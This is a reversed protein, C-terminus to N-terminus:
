PIFASEIDSWPGTHTTNNFWRASVFIRKGREWEEFVLTLPNATDLEIHVLADVREPRADLIAWRIEIGHVHDPKAWHKSGFDRYRITIERIVSTVFEMEPVTSPTPQKTRTTDWNRIGMKDRDFDTVPEWRLFRNIFARLAREKETRVRNKEHTIQPIHPVLTQEYAERWGVFDQELQDVNDQPIHGWRGNNAIVYDVINRFFTDFAPDPRPIFDVRSM